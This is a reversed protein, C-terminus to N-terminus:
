LHVQMITFSVLDIQLFCTAFITKCISFISSKNVSNRNALQPCRLGPLLRRHIDRAPPNHPRRHGSRHVQPAGRDTWDWWDARADRGSDDPLGDAVIILYVHCLLAHSYVLIDGAPSNHPRRHGSRHVQPAGRDFWDRWDARPYCGSDDSLGDSVIILCNSHSIDSLSFLTLNINKRITCEINHLFLIYNNFM